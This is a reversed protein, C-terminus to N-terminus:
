ASGGHVPCAAWYIGGDLVYSVAREKCRADECYPPAEPNNLPRHRPWDNGPPDGEYDFASVADSERSTLSM